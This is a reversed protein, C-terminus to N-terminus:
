SASPLSGMDWQVSRGHFDALGLRYVAGAPWLTVSIGAGEPNGDYEVALWALPADPTAAEGSRQLAAEIRAKTEPPLYTWVITHMLVRAVGKPPPEALKGEVWDAADAREVHWPAREAVDLAARTRALREAQDPWIYSLLRERDAPSSPDLPNRDCGAREAITLPVDISPHGGDWRCRIAVTADANGWEKGGLDYRYGDFGLNLGASSGIEIISLPMKAWEAIALCAGLIIGSRAVENTQPASDLYGALFADEANISAQLAAWLETGDVLHPPYAATLAPARGSRALAHLGGTARLPLVDNGPDGPWDLIRRGFASERSLGEALVDCLMATFPSGLKRSAEAQRRFSKLVEGSMRGASEPSFPRFVAVTPEM